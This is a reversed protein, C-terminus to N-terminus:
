SASCCRAPRACSPLSRRTRPPCTKWTRGRAARRPSALRTTCTRSRWRARRAAARAGRRAPTEAEATRADARAREATVLVYAHVAGDFEEIRSLYAETVEVPSLERAAFGTALEAITLDTLRSVGASMLCVRGPWAAVFTHSTEDAAALAQRMREFGVRDARWASVLEAIQGAPLKLGARAIMAAVFATERAEDPGQETASEAM